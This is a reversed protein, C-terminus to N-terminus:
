NAGLRLILEKHRNFAKDDVVGFVGQLGDKFQKSTIKDKIKSFRDNFDHRKSVELRVWDADKVNAVLMFLDRIDTSRCSLMKMAFLADINIIKLRLKEQITKGRLPIIESNQFIWKASFAANTQRDLVDKVLIDMSVRFDEKIEKEYREFEGHYPTDLKSLGEKIYGRGALKQGIKKLETKDMVVIDCDVSFRPLAYANVAYGGIIVFEMGKISKLTDFIEKERLQLIDM